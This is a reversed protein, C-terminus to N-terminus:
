MQLLKNHRPPSWRRQLRQKSQHRVEKTRPQTTHLRQTTSATSETTTAQTGTTTINRRPSTLPQKTTTSRIEENAVHTATSNIRKPTTSYEQKVTTAPFRNEHQSTTTTVPSASPVPSATEKADQEAFDIGFKTAASAVWARARSLRCSGQLMARCESGGKLLGRASHSASAGCGLAIKKFRAMLTSVPLNCVDQDGVVVVVDRKVFQAHLHLPDGRSGAVVFTPIKGGALGYPWDDYDHCARLMEEHPLDFAVPLSDTTDNLPRCMPSELPEPANKPRIPGLYLYSSPAAVVYRLHVGHNILKKEDSPGAIAFRQILQAGASHGVLVISRLSPFVERNGLVSVFIDLIDLTAGQGEKWGADRWHLSGAPRHSSKKKDFQPAILLISKNV